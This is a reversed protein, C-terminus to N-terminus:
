FIVECGFIQSIWHRDKVKISFITTLLLQKNAYSTQDNKLKNKYQKTSFARDSRFHQVLNFHLDTILTGVANWTFYDHLTVRLLGFVHSFRSQELFRDQFGCRDLAIRFAKITSELLIYLPNLEMATYQKRQVSCKGQKVSTM